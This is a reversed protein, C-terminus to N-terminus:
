QNRNTKSHFVALEVLFAGASSLIIESSVFSGTFHWVIGDVVGMAIFIAISMAAFSSVFRSLSLGRRSVPQSLVSELIGSVRDKGYSNYSGLIAMLPVFLGFIGEFFGIVFSNGQAVTIPSPPPPYLMTSDFTTLSQSLMTGNPYFLALNVRGISSLNAVTPSPFIQTYSNLTGLIHMNSENFTQPNLGPQTVVQTCVEGGGPTSQCGSSSSSASSNEFSYYVSYNSPPAGFMGVWDVIIDRQSSNTSDTVINIGGSGFLPVPQDPRVYTVVNDNQPNYSAFPPYGSEGSNYNNPQITLLSFM